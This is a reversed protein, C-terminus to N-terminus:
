QMCTPELNLQDSSCSACYEQTAQQSYPISPLKRLVFSVSPSALPMTTLNVCEVETAGPNAPVSGPRLGLM